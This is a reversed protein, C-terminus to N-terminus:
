MLHEAVLDITSKEGPQTRPDGPVRPPEKGSPPTYGNFTDGIEKDAKGEAILDTLGMPKSTGDEGTVSRTNGQEDVVRLTPKGEGDFAAAVQPAFVGMHIRPKGGGEIIAQRLRETKFDDLRGDQSAKLNGELETVRSNAQDRERTIRAVDAPRNKQLDANKSTLDNVKGTLKEQETTLDNVQTRLDNREAEITQKASTLGDVNEVRFGQTAQLVFVDGDVGHVTGLVYHEKLAEPISGEQDKPYYPVLAM